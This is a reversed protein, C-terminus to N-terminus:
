LPKKLIKKARRISKRAELAGKWQAPNGKLKKLSAWLFLIQSNKKGRGIEINRQAIQHMRKYQKKFVRYREHIEMGPLLGEQPGAMAGNLEIIMARGELLDAFSNARIDFRGFWIDYIDGHANTLATKIFQSLQIKQDDSLPRLALTVGYDVSGFIGVKQVQGSDPIFTLEEETLVKLINTEQKILYGKQAILERVTSQGDGVVQPLMREALVNPEFEGTDENRFFSLTFEGHQALKEQVLFPKKTKSAYSRLDEASRILEVGFSREGMDPKCIVGNDFSIELSNMKGLVEEIPQKPNVLLTKPYYQPNLHNAIEAKSIEFLGSLGGMAPNLGNLCTIMKRYLAMIPYYQYYWFLGEWGLQPNLSKKDELIYEVLVISAEETNKEELASQYRKQFDRKKITDM